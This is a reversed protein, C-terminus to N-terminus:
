RTALVLRDLISVQCGLEKAEEKRVQSYELESLEALKQIQEEESASQGQKITPNIV